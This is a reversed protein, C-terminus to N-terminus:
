TNLVSGIVSAGLEELIATAQRAQGSHTSHVSFSCIVGDALAAVIRGEPCDLLPPADIIIHEFKEALSDLLSRSSPSSLLEASHELQSGAPMVSLREVRTRYICQNLSAPNRLMDSWGASAALDFVDALAPNGLDADVLLVNRGSRAISIALNVSLTTKTEAATPATVVILRPTSGQGFLVATRINRYQDNIYDAMSTEEPLWFDDPQQGDSSPLSALVPIGVRRVIDGANTLRSDFHEVLLGGSLALLGALMASAAICLWRFNNVKIAAVAKEALIPEAPPLMQAARLQLQEKYSAMRADLDSVQGALRRVETIEEAIQSDKTQLERFFKDRAQRFQDKQAVIAQQTALEAQRLKEAEQQAQVKLESLRQAIGKHIKEFVATKEEAGAGASAFVDASAKLGKAKNFLKEQDSASAPTGNAIMSLYISRYMELLPDKSALEDFLNKEKELDASSASLGALRGAAQSYDSEAAALDRKAEALPQILNEGQRYLERIYADNGRGSLSDLLAKKDRGFSALEDRLQQTDNQYKNIQPLVDHALYIEAVTNAVEVLGDPSSGSAIVFVMQGRDQLVTTTRALLDEVASQALGLKQVAATVIDRRHIRGLETAVYGSYGLRPDGGLVTNDVGPSPKFHLQAVAQYTPHVYIISLSVGVALLVSFIVLMIRWRKRFTRIALSEPIQRAGLHAPALLPYDVHPSAVITRSVQDTHSTQTQLNEAM